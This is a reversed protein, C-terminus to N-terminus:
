SLHQGLRQLAEHCPLVQAVRAKLERGSKTTAFLNHEQLEVGNISLAVQSVNIKLFGQDLQEDGIM